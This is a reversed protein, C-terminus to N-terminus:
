TPQAQWLGHAIGFMASHNVEGKFATLDAACPWAQTHADHMALDAPALSLLALHDLRATDLPWRTEHMHPQRNQVIQLLVRPWTHPRLALPSVHWFTRDHESSSALTQASWVRDHNGQRCRTTNLGRVKVFAGTSVVLSNLGRACGDSSVSHCECNALRSMSSSWCARRVDPRSIERCVGVLAEGAARAGIRRRWRCIVCM